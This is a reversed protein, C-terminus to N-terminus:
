NLILWDYLLIDNNICIIEAYLVIGKKISVHILKKIHLNITLDIIVNGLIYFWCDM